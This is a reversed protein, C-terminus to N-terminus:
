DATLQGTWAFRNAADYAYVGYHASTPDGARDLAIPGSVGDYDIDDQTKLVDLCEGFSMCKIGDGSVGPLMYALLPGGDDGAVTAALAALITADYAEAAYRTDNPAPDMAALRAAFAENAEAGELVGRAGELVGGPLAQSYDALAGGALWVKSGGLGADTLATIIAVNQEMAEFGSALLVADPKAAAVADVVAAADGLQEQAVVSGEAAALAATFTEAVASSSDDAGVIVAVDTAGDAVIADALVGGMLAASPATRALLGEDALGTLVPASAAPSVLLVQAEIALPLIREALVSSSPGIVVDVGKEVLQAFSEEAQQTAAEGSNRHFVEVPKGLVGGAENVERVALEVGAVQAPSLYAADGSTAFLTGIRLVGDGSAPPPSPLPSSTPLVMEESTCSSLGLAIVVAAACAVVRMRRM